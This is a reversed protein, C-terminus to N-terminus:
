AEQWTKSLSYYFPMKSQFLPPFVTETLYEGREVELKEELRYLHKVFNQLVSVKM